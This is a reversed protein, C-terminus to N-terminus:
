QRLALALVIRLRALSRWDIDPYAAMREDSVQSAAEGIIELLREVSRLLVQDPTSDQQRLTIIIEVENCADLIDAIRQDDNRTM